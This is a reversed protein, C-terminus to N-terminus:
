IAAASESSHLGSALLQQREQFFAVWIGAIIARIMAPARPLICSLHWRHDRTKGGAKVLDDGDWYKRSRGLNYPGGWKGTSDKAAFGTKISFVWKSRFPNFFITARDSTPGTMNLMTRWNVGDGSYKLTYHSCSVECVVAM